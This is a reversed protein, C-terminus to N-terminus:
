KILELFENEDIIRIGLDLAKDLKSGAGPGAIVIDTKRSVSNTCTGGLEEIKAKAENRGMSQLTGTLVVIKHAFAGNIINKKIYKMNVGVEKLSDILRINNIDQFYDVVSQAIIEGIDDLAVLQDFSAKELEEISPFANCLTSAVKSGVNKIGLGFILRDLNMGKSVEIAGLLNDVSKEGLKELSVLEQRYKELHYLDPIEKILELDFLKQILSDGLSDIDMAQKSAFHIISNVKRAPCNENLCFYDAENEKRVLISNCSPCNKIMEFPISDEKRKSLDVEFVEPIIEGSKRVKITDGIRIDRLRIYDENHLTARSVDTGSIFVKDFEAVPTITGTRGVQFVIKRLISEGVEAPYKYAICWKPCKVTYGIQDYAYIENVKIVVGDIPYPLEDKHIQWYSIYEEIEEISSCKKSEKNVKFGQDILFELVKSQEEFNGGIVQYMFNDLNRKAVVQSDLSKITGSAANRCNQFLPLGEEEREKNVKSLSKKPMFIEGRVEIDLPDKLKLPISKITKANTTIIEGVTGNGRTSAVKLIGKEYICSVSLGDVKLEVSYTPSPIIKRIDKDFKIVENIDFVDDISMMKVEHTIKEFRDLVKDAVRRTPSDILALEPYEKELNVLERYLSDYEYDSLTPNDMVYYDYSAKNLIETLLLIREKAEM